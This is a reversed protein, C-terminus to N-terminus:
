LSKFNIIDSMTFTGKKDILWEAAIVAGLAFGKRNKAEHTLSIHDIDSKYTIEHTGPVEPLRKAIIPLVQDEQKEDDSLAWSKFEKQNKLMFEATTIATGSPADLKETHHTETISPKYSTHESMIKSFHKSLEWFLHVGISFNSAYLLSGKNKEVKQKIHDLEESWGTTGVVVPVNRDLCLQIHTTALNPASFEIAIDADLSSKTTFPQSSSFVNSITHGREMAIAEIEKGM